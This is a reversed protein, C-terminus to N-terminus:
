GCREGFYLRASPLAGGPRTSGDNRRIGTSKLGFRIEQQGSVTTVGETGRVRIKMVRRSQSRELVEIDRISGVGFRRSAGRDIEGTWWMWPSDGYTRGEYSRGARDLDRFFKLYPVPNSFVNAAYETTRGNSAHFFATIPSGNYAAYIRSTGSVARNTPRTEASAGGYVQDRVDDHFDFLGGSKTALAYSRAAVAQSRLAQQDWSAPMEKPVVGRLYSELPLRNILTLSRRTARILMGGRYETARYTLPGGSSPRIFIPGSYAGIVRSRTLDVVRYLDRRPLYRTRYRGRDLEVTGRTELNILTATRGSRVVVDFASGRVRNGLLVKVPTRGPSREFGAGRYYTRIIRGFNQGAEARGKAGYQSLGVGHGYGTGCVKLPSAGEAKSAAGFLLVAAALSAFAGVLLTGLLRGMAGRVM